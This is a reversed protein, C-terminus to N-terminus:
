PGGHEEALEELVLCGAGRIQEAALRDPLEGDYVSVDVQDILVDGSGLGLSRLDGGHDLGVDLSIVDRTQGLQDLPGPCRGVHGLSRARLELMLWECVALRELEAVGHDLRDRRRPM